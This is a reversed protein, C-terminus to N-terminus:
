SANSAESIFNEFDGLSIDESGSRLDEAMAILTKGVKTHMVPKAQAEKLIHHQALKTLKDSKVEQLVQEALEGISGAM